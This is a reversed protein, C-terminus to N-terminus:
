GSTSGLKVPKASARALRLSKKPGRYRLDEEENRVDERGLLDERAHLDEKGHLDERGSEMRGPRKPERTM